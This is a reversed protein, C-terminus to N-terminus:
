LAAAAAAERITRPFEGKRNASGPEYNATDGPKQRESGWPESRALAPTVLTATPPSSLPRPVPPTPFSVQIMGLM